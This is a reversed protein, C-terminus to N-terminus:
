LINDINNGVACGFVASSLSAIAIAKVCALVDLNSLYFYTTLLFNKISYQHQPFLLPLFFIKSNVIINGPKRKRVKPQKSAKCGTYNMGNM